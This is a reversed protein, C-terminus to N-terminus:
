SSYINLHFNDIAILFHNKRHTINHLSCIEICIYKANGITKYTM